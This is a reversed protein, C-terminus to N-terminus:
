RPAHRLLSDATASDGRALAKRAESEYLGACGRCYRNARELYQRALEPRRTAFAASAAGLYVISAKDFIEISRQFAPLAKEPQNSSLLLSGSWFPGVYSRPSDDLISLTVASDSRWVPVRLASRVAGAAVLVLTLTWYRRAELRELLAGAAIVLGVSPLYLAREAVLVGIPFLLNAVPLLAIGIWGLGFAESRRGRRWALVLLATWLALCALGLLFRADFPSLVISREAPSYDVRLTLPFVLLRVIDALAYVATLRVPAEGHEIFVPGANSYQGFPHLVMGRAVGYAVAILVWMAVHALVRRRPPRDVGLVWALGILGPVVAANEKTLLGLAFCLASGWVSQRWLALYVALCAFAAAMIEARGVVNAIAEVHVPHVAFLLGAALAGVPALLRRALAAVLVTAIAHWVLNMAHFWMAGGLQWDLAFTALVLPRYMRGGLAAPWYPMQFSRWVGDLSHILANSRIIEVDDIAFRNWLAGLHVLVAVAAVV